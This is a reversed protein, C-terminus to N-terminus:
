SNIKSVMNQFVTAGAPEGSGFRFDQVVQRNQSAEQFDIIDPLDDISTRRQTEQSLKSILSTKDIDAAILFKEKGARVVYLTKRPAINITEEVGLFKSKSTRCFGETSKKYVFVAACIVGIMAATYVIFNLLYGSM